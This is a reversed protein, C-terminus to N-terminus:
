IMRTVTARLYCGVGDAEERGGVCADLEATDLENERNPRHDIDQETRPPAERQIAKSFLAKLKM